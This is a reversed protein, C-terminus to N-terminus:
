ENVHEKWLKHLPKLNVRAVEVEGLTGDPANGSQFLLYMIPNSLMKKVVTEDASAQMPMGEEVEDKEYWNDLEVLHRMDFDDDVVNDEEHERFIIAPRGVASEPYFIHLTPEPNEETPLTVMIHFIGNVPEEASKNSVYYHDRWFHPLREDSSYFWVATAKSLDGVIKNVDDYNVDKGAEKLESYKETMLDIITYGWEQGFMRNKLSVEDTSSNCVSDAFPYVVSTVQDWTATSDLMVDVFEQYLQDLSRSAPKKPSQSCSLTCLLILTITFLKRM